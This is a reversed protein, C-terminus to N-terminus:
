VGVRKLGYSSQLVQAAQGGKRINSVFINIVDGNDSQQVQGAKSADEYLNVSVSVAASQKGQNILRDTEEASKIDAAGYVIAGNVMEAGRESVTGWMGPPNNSGDYHAGSFNTGRLQAILNAGQALVGAGAILGAPFGLKWAEMAGQIMSLTASAIAFSKQLVFMTKYGASGESFASKMMEFYGSIGNAMQGWVGAQQEATMDRLRATFQTMTTSLTKDGFVDKMRTFFALIGNETDAYGYESQIKESLQAQTTNKLQKQEADSKIKTVRDQHAKEAMEVASHYETALITGANYFDKLKQLQENYRKTEVDLPTMLAEAAQNSSSKLSKFFSDWEARAKDAVSKVSSGGSKGSQAATPTFVAASGAGAKSGLKAIEDAQRKLRAERDKDAKVSADATDKIMMKIGKYSAKVDDFLTDFETRAAYATAKFGEDFFSSLSPTNKLTDGIAKFDGSVVEHLVAGTKDGITTLVNFTSKAFSILATGATAIAAKVTKLVSIVAATVITVGIKLLSFFNNFFTSVYEGCTGSSDGVSGTIEDIAAGAETTIYKLGNRFDTMFRSLDATISAFWQNNNIFNSLSDLADVAIWVAQTIVDGLGGNGNGGLAFLFDGWADGINKIAGTLGQMQSEAAGAFDSKSISSVYDLMAQKTNAIETVSGKFSVKIKDGSKEAQIGLQQLGRLQGATASYVAQSVETLSKGTGAAINSLDKILGTTPMIGSKGLTLVSQKIEDFSQPLERSLNNFTTFVARAQEANDTIARFSSIVKENGAVVDAIQKFFAATVFGAFLGKLSTVATGVDRWSKEARKGSKTISDAARGASREAGKLGQQFDDTKLKMLLTLSKAIAM